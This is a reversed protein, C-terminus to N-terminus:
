EDDDDPIASFAHRFTVPEKYERPEPKRSLISQDV